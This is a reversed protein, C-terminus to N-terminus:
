ACTGGRGSVRRLQTCYDPTDDITGDPMSSCSLRHGEHGEQGGPKKGSPKRLTRTRRVIRDKMSEKSPPTSSNGSNRGPNEYGSLRDRLITNEDEKKRIQRNLAEINRNLKAIEAYQENITERMLRMEEAMNRLVKSMDTVQEKM